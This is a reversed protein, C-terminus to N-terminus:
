YKYISEIISIKNTAHIKKFRQGFEKFGRLYELATLEM